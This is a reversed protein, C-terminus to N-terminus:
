LIKKEKIKIIMDNIKKSLNKDALNSIEAVNIIQIENKSNYRSSLLELLNNNKANATIILKSGSNVYNQFVNAANSEHFVDLTSDPTEIIFFSNNHFYSLISFRFTLDTFIRQSESLEYETNRRLNQLEFAILLEGMDENILDFSDESEISFPLSIEAKINKGFFRGAYKSFNLSFSKFEEVLLLEINKRMISVKKKEKIVAENASKIEKEMAKIRKEDITNANSINSKRDIADKEFQIDELTTNIINIENHIKEYTKKLSDFNYRNAELKKNLEKRRLDITKFEQYNEQLQMKEGCFICKDTQIDFIHNQNCIPCIGCNISQILQTYKKEYENPLFINSWDMSNKSLATSLTQYEKRLVRMDNEIKDLISNKDNKEKNLREMENCLINYDIIKSDVEASQESMRNLFKKYYNLTESAKKYQSESYTVNRIQNEFNEYAEPELLYKSIVLHQLSSQWFTYKRDESFFIVDNITSVITNFGGPVSATIALKTQYKEILYDDLANEAERGDLVKSYLSEFKGYSTIKGPINVGNISFSELQNAELSHTVKFEDKGIFFIVEVMSSEAKNVGNKLGRSLFFNDSFTPRNERRKNERTKVKINGIYPGIISYILIQILTSKGIGNTGFFVTIKKDFDIHIDKKFLGYNYIHMTKLVPLTFKNM